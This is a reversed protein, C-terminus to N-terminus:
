LVGQTTVDEDRCASRVRWDLHELMDGMVDVKEDEEVEEEVVEEESSEDAVQNAFGKWMQQIVRARLDSVTQLIRDIGGAANIPYSTLLAIGETFARRQTGLCLRAHVSSLVDWVLLM